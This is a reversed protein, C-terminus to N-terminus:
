TNEICRGRCGRRRQINTDEDGVVFGDDYDVELVDNMRAVGLIVCDATPLAGGALSTGSGRPVVPVGETFCIKLIQSVDQTSAPLVVLMPACRYATLADCDYAHTERPAHIVAEDPLIAQFKRILMQKKALVTQSPIPMQM